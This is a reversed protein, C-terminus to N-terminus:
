KSMCRMSAPPLVSSAIAQHNPLGVSGSAPSGEGVSRSGVAERSSQLKRNLVDKIAANEMGLEAYMRKLKANDGGAGALAQAGIGGRRRIKVEPRPVHDHMIGHKRVLEAVPVGAEGEKLNEVIQSETSRSKKM